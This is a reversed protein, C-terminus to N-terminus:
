THISVGTNISSRRYTCNFQNSFTNRGRGEKKKQRRYTCFLSENLVRKFCSDYRGSKVTGNCIDAHACAGSMNTGQAWMYQHVCKGREAVCFTQRNNWWEIKPISHAHANALYAITRDERYNAMWYMLSIWGAILFWLGHQSGLKLYCPALHLCCDSRYPHM